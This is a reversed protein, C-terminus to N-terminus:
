TFVAVDLKCVQGWAAQHTALQVIYYVGYTSVHLTSMGFPLNGQLAQPNCCSMHQMHQLDLLM